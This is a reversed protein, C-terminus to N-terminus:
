KINLLLKNLKYNIEPSVIKGSVLLKLEDTSIALENAFQQNTLGLFDQLNAIQSATFLKNQKCYKVNAQNIAYATLMSDGVMKKTRFDYRAPTIVKIVQKNVIFISLHNKLYTKSVFTVEKLKQM